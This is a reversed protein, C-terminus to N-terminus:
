KSPSITTSSDQLRDEGPCWFPELAGTFGPGKKHPINCHVHTQETEIMSDPERSTAFEECWRGQMHYHKRLKMLENGQLLKHPDASGKDWSHVGPSLLLPVLSLAKQLVETLSRNDESWPHVTIPSGKVFLHCLKIECRDYAARHNGLPAHPSSFGAAKPPAAQSSHHHHCAHPLAEFPM